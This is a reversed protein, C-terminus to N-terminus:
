IAFKLIMLPYILLNLKEMITNLSKEKYIISICHKIFPSRSPNIYKDSFIYKNEDLLTQSLLSNIEMVCLDKENKNYNVIYFYDTFGINKLNKNM